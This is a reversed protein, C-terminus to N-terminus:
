ANKGRFLFWYVLLGTGITLCMDAFNFIPFSSWFPMSIFDRVYGFVIRDYINGIAGAIFTGFAVCAFVSKRGYFWWLVVACLTLIVTFIALFIGSNRMFGWAIGTNKVV